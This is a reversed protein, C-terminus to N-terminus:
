GARQVRVNTRAALVGDIIPAPVKSPVGCYWCRGIPDDTM